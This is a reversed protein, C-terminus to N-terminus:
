LTSLRITSNILEKIDDEVDEYNSLQCCIRNEWASVDICVDSYICVFRGQCKINITFQKSNVRKEYVKARLKEDTYEGVLDFGNKQLIEAEKSLKLFVEERNVIKCRNKNYLM